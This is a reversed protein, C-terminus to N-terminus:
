RLTGARDIRLRPRCKAHSFDLQDGAILEERISVYRASANCDDSSGVAITVTRERLLKTLTAVGFGLAALSASGIDIQDM